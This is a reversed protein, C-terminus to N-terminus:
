TLQRHNDWKLQAVAKAICLPHTSDLLTTANEYKLAYVGIGMNQYEVEPSIGHKECEAKIQSEQNPEM